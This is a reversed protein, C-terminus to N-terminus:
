AIKVRTTNLNGAQETLTGTQETLTGTQETLTGTQETLTGTQETLTGTQETLTGPQLTLTRTPSGYGVASFTYTGDIGEPPLKLVVYDYDGAGASDQEGVLYVNDLSDIAIQPITEFRGGGLFRQWQLVGDSNWKAVVFDRIGAGASNQHGVLYVNDLSDIAIQPDYEASSGGLFRQWQLVGASNWKAVVYDEFGAGASRQEGVLYVNDLSDIAIQPITESGAGGLFRQWQLVGSSNWKAVVFDNSGAGASNQHGVLYINDLSDIAIQPDRESGGRGLFRQWQLVGDSNWKAVVYDFNGAGASAQWGVLYVNDLSDIAIQPDYEASSGGLFRQWQLVGDSNWKAVVHDFSGAGASFQFGVLYINDLSDIAIQPDRESSNGGLFRQWQLVGASNWKAVVFDADGAGASGQYGVLYVNDLSDIAIQPAGEFFSGGLFRQWQLVGASNWKAVVYDYEGAGASSQSGVLYVNNLSDVAIQPNSEVATGGFLAAWSAVIGTFIEQWAGNQKQFVSASDGWSGGNKVHIATVENWAGNKKFSVSM